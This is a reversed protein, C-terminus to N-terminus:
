DLRETEGATGMVIGFLGMLLMAHEYGIAPETVGAVLTAALAGVAGAWAAGLPGDGFRRRHRVLWRCTAVVWAAMTVVGLTGMEAAVHLWINHAQSYPRGKPVAYRARAPDGTPGAYLRFTRPGVGLWPHDRWLRVASRWIDTREGVDLYTGAHSLATVRRAVEPQALTAGVVVIVLLGLAPVVVTPRRWGVMVVVTVVLAAWITRATSLGLLVLSSGAGVALLTAGVRAVQLRDAMGLMMALMMVLYQAVANKNGLSFMKFDHITYGSVLVRGVMVSAALGGGAVAAWLFASTWKPGRIGRCVLFFFGTYRFIEWVGRWAQRAHASALASAIAVGLSALFFWGVPPMVIEGRGGIIILALYAVLAVVYAINKLSESLPLFFVTLVIAGALVSTLRDCGSDTVGAMRGM